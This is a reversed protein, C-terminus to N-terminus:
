EVGEGRGMDTDNSLSLLAPLRKEQAFRTRLGGWIHFHFTSALRDVIYKRISISQLSFSSSNMM